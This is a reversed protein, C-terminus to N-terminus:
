GITTLSEHTSREVMGYAKQDGWRFLAGGQQLNLGGIDPNGIRFTNLATEGEIVTEGLESALKLVFADGHPVIRRLFPAEVIRAPYLRGAKFIIADNYSYDGESGERPPYALSGFADGNPFVASLWCHGYFGELRRVSQRHIRTGIGKFEYTKGDITYTGTARLHHEFRYGLGMAAANDRELQSMTSTDSETQQVWAPTVMTMEVHLKVPTSGRKGYIGKIQETVDGDLPAGDYTMTWRRFPEVCRFTLPGAGIITPRGSEDIAPPAAGRGAGNLARGDPFTFAAQLRRNEWSEAEAEIGIRPFGFAGNEEYLWLSVSERMEPEAPRGPFVLDKEPALGGTLDDLVVTM